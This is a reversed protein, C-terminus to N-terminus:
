FPNVKLILNHTQSFQPLCTDLQEHLHVSMEETVTYTWYDPKNHESGNPKYANCYTLTHECACVSSRTKHEVKHTESVSSLWFEGSILACWVSVRVYGCISTYEYGLPHLLPEKFFLDPPLGATLNQFFNNQSKILLAWM